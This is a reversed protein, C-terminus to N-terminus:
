IGVRKTQFFQFIIRYGDLRRVYDSYCNLILVDFSIQIQYKVWM